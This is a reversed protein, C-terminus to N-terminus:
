VWLTTLISSTHTMVKLTTQLGHLIDKGGPLKKVKSDIITADFGLNWSWNKRNIVDYDLSLEFGRNSITGINRNQALNPFADNYPSSGASLPLRVEFLM